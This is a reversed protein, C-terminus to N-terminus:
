GKTWLVLALQELRIAIAEASVSFRINLPTFNTGNFNSASGLLRSLERLTQPTGKRSHGVAGSIAFETEENLIFPSLGFRQEFEATLLKEPML